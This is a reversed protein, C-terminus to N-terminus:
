HMHVIRLQRTQVRLDVHQTDEISYLTQVPTICM